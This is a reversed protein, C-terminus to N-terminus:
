VMAAATRHVKAAEDPSLERLAPLLLDLIPLRAAQGLPRVQAALERVEQLAKAGGYEIIADAQRERPEDEEEHLMLALMLSAAGTHSHIAGDVAPPLSRLLEGAFAVHESQPSGISAMLQGGLMEGDPLTSKRIEPGRRSAGALSSAGVAALEAATYNLRVTPYDGDFSPDLRRIRDALPPHTALPSVKTRRLGSAFFLHSAEQANPSRLISGHTGGIKKLAGALGEPNRTFQVAAADALYERQRSVAAQILRGFFVGIYGVVLLAFGVLAIQGAGSDRSSRRGSGGTHLLMRGAIALLMIGFLLGMLRINLRMDGNLIHSFE